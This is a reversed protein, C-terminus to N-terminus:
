AGSQGYVTVSIRVTNSVKGTAPGTIRVGYDSLRVNFNTRVQLVDGKFGANRTQASEKLHRVDATTTVVRTVGRMTFNGTVRYTTGRVFEVRTTQFVIEKFKDTDLWQPGRLHEDRLDIGTDLSSADIVIRGSGTRKSPDFTLRGTVRDTRATFTELDTVSEATAIQQTRNGSGVSFSIPQASVAQSLLFVSALLVIRSSM